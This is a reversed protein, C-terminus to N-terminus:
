NIEKVAKFVFPLDIISEFHMGTERMDEDEEEYHWEVLLPHEHALTVEENDKEEPLNNEEEENEKEAQVEEPAEEEEEHKGNKLTELVDKALELFTQESALAAKGLSDQAQQSEESEQKDEAYGEKLNKLNKLMNVLYDATSTNFYILKLIFRTPTEKKETVYDEVWKMLPDYFNEADEPISVGSIELYNNDFDFKVAPTKSTKEIVIDEM